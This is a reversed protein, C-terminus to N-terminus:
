YYLVLFIVGSLMKGCWKHFGYSRSFFIREEVDIM